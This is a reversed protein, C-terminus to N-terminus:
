NKGYEELLRRQAVTMLQVPFAIEEGRGTLRLFSLMCSHLFRSRTFQQSRLARVFRDRETRGAKFAIIVERKPGNANM